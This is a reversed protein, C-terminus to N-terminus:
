AVVKDAERKADQPTRHKTLTGDPHRLMAWRTDHYITWGDERTEIGGAWKIWLTTKMANIDCLGKRSDVPFKM